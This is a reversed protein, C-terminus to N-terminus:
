IPKKWIADAEFSAPSELLPWIGGVESAVSYLDKLGSSKFREATMRDFFRILDDYYGGHNLVVVPKDLRNIYRLTMIETLEELTGIGGPLALFASAREEMVRKRDRMSDVTILEDAQEYALERQKMFEPIVGVVHGGAAKVSRAVSGMMGANGGGYVLGWGNAVMARGVAEAASYYQEELHRSSGCYVCLLKAMNPIADVIPNAKGFIFCFEHFKRGGVAPAQRGGGGAEEVEPMRPREPDGRAPCAVGASLEDQAVVVQVCRAIPQIESPGHQLVESPEAEPPGLAGIHASGVGRVLLAAPEGEITRCELLEVFGAQDVGAGTGPAVHDLCRASGVLAPALLLGDIGRRKAGVGTCLQGREAHAYSHVPAQPHGVALDKAEGVRAQAWLLRHRPDVKAIKGDPPLVVAWAVLERADHIIGQHAYGLDNAPVVEHARGEPLEQDETGKPKRGRCEVM